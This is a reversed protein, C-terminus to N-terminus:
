VKPNLDYRLVATSHLYLRIKAVQAGFSLRFSNSSQRSTKAALEPTVTSTKYHRPHLKPIVNTAGRFHAPAKHLECFVRSTTSLTELICLPNPVYVCLYFWSGVVPESTIHASFHPLHLTFLRDHMFHRLWCGCPPGNVWSVVLWECQGFFLLFPRSEASSNLRTRRSSGPALLFYQGSKSARQLSRGNVM